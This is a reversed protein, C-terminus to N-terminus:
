LESKLRANTHHIMCTAVFCVFSDFSVLNQAIQHKSVELLKYELFVFSVLKSFSFVEHLHFLDLSDLEHKQYLVTQM